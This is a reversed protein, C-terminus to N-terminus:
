LGYEASDEIAPATGLSWSFCATEEYEQQDYLVRFVAKWVTPERVERKENNKGAPIEVSMFSASVPRILWECKSVKQPGEPELNTRNIIM